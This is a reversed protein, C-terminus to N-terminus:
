YPRTPESIHILSLDVRSVEVIYLIPVVRLSVTNGKRLHGYQIKLKKVNGEMFFMKGKETSPISIQQYQGGM